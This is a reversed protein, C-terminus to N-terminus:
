RRAEDKTKAMVVDNFILLVSSSIRVNVTDDIDGGAAPIDSVARVMAEASANTTAAKASPRPTEYKAQPVM